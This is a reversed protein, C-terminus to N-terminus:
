TIHACQLFRFQILRKFPPTIAESVPFKLGLRNNKAAEEAM